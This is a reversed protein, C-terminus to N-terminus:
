ARNAAQVPDPSTRVLVWTAALVGAAIGLCYLAVAAYGGANRPDLFPYPYWDVLPGRILSYVVFAVPFLLWWRAERWGIRERPSDLLWDAVMALPIIRHLVTDVWPLTTQLEEQYGALLVGYVIGTLSLYLVSAGRWADFRPLTDDRALRVAGYLLTGAALLNSQITFFSFFNVPRFADDDRLRDIQTTVAAVVLLFAAIRLILLIRRRNM